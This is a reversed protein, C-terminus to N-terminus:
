NLFGSCSQASAMVEDHFLIDTTCLLFATNSPRRIWNTQSFYQNWQVVDRTKWAKDIAIRMAREVQQPNSQPGALKVIAPYLEKTMAMNPNHSLMLIAERIFAFGRMKTSFGLSILFNAVRDRGSLAEVPSFTSSLIEHLREVLLAPSCPKRFIYSIPYKEIQQVVFDNIFLSAIIITPVKNLQEMEHLLTIGDIEPLVLDMILIDPNESQMINLASAGDGCFFVEFENKLHQILQNSFSANPDAILIKQM